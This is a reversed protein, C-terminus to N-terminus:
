YGGYLRRWLVEPLGASRIGRAARDIDYSTRLHRWTRAETDILLWAARPDGDRPQGVSGANLVCPLPLDGSPGASARGRGNWLAPLHTHGIVMSEDPFAELCARAVAPHLVYTFSSPDPPFAHCLLLGEFRAVLPLAALAGANRPSLVSRTWEAAARGAPNFRDLPEVGAVGADHNGQVCADCLPLVADMCEAPWAGYGVIDGLCVTSECQGGAPDALVAELAPLNAHIDSLVRILM